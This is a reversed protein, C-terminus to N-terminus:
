KQKAGELLSKLTEKQRIKYQPEKYFQDTIQVSLYKLNGSEILGCKLCSEPVYGSYFIERLKQYFPNNWVESFSNSENVNGIHFSQNRCCMAVNGQLDIYSQRLLWDCIGSCRVKSAKTDRQIEDHSELYTSVIAATWKMQEIEQPNKYLPKQKMKNLEDEIEEFTIDRNLGNMNPVIVPIGCKEGMKLAQMSYYELVKPYNCMEDQQNRIIINSNLTMFTIINAGAQSALEVMQPMEQVNQRMIVTAIHKRVNPCREKLTFLNVLFVEFSLNKRIAEYTEKTAGDCSVELWEFHNNIQDILRENLISLNTNTVIKNGFSAYYDIQDSLRESIFPEGMGNLSITRSLQIADKLNRLTTDGLHTTGKNDNFYHSCMICKANCFSTTEIQLYNPMSSLARKRYIFNIDILLDNIGKAKKWNKYKVSDNLLKILRDEDKALVIEGSYYLYLNNLEFLNHDKLTSIIAHSIVIQVDSSILQNDDSIFVVDDTGFYKRVVELLSKKEESTCIVFIRVTLM